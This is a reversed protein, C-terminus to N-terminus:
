EAKEGAKLPTRPKLPIVSNGGVGGPAYLVPPTPTSTPTSEKSVEHKEQGPREQYVKGDATGYYTGYSNVERWTGDAKVEMGQAGKILDRETSDRVQVWSGDPNVRSRENGHVEFNEWRGDANLSAKDGNNGEWNWTGDAKVHLTGSSNTYDWSGDEHITAGESISEGYTSTPRPKGAKNDDTLAKSTASPSPSSTSASSSTTTLPSASPSGNDATSVSANSQSTESSSSKGSSGASSCASLALIMALAASIPVPLHRLTNM